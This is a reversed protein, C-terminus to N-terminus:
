TFRTALGIRFLALDHERKRLLEQAEVVTTLQFSIEDLPQLQAARAFDITIVHAIKPYGGITQCDGLLVIPAGGRPIQIAGAAVPESPMEEIAETSINAGELRLGMRDSNMAVRFSGSLFTTRNQEAFRNWQGGPVVRLVQEHSTLQPASWDSIGSDITARMRLALPSPEGLTLKDGDRLTRGDYGGFHARLDTSRSGLLEPVDIGGSIALWARGRKAQIECTSNPPIRACHLPPVLVPDVRVAFEGGCWAILREAGFQLRVRGSGIELGAACEDNGVLLNAIRIAAPDLAGATTVGFKRFGVRGCDQITTQFGAALIIM